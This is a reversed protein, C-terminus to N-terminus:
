VVKPSGVHGGLIAVCNRRSSLGRSKSKVGGKEMGNLEECFEKQSKMLIVESYSM